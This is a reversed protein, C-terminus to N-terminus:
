PQLYNHYQELRPPHVAYPDIGRERVLEIGKDLVRLWAARHQPSSVPTTTDSAISVLFGWLETAATPPELHEEGLGYDIITFGKDADYLFNHSSVDLGIGEEEVGVAIGEVATALQDTTIGEVVATPLNQLNEDSAFLSIVVQDKVSYTVLQEFVRRGRGAELAQARELMWALSAQGDERLPTPTASRLVMAALPHEVRYLSASDTDVMHTVGEVREGALLAAVAQDFGLQSYLPTLDEPLAPPQWGEIGPISMVTNYCM